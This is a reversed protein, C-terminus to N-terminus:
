RLQDVISLRTARRMPILSLILTAVLVLGTTGFLLGPTLRAYMKTSVAFGSITFGEELFSKLDIGWVQVIWAALGGLLLGLACGILGLYFSELLIQLRLQDPKTGLALLIAFERERELVSMLITNLITFLILFVLIAQFILNSGKDLKIYSAIEPIVTQWPLVAIDDQAALLQIESLVSEQAEPVRLIVGLQSVGQDPLGFLRRAFEIPAQIFYGDIEVSGTEFIGRVRCLEDVLNGAADNTTLVMKKGVGLKLRQALESGIVVWPGDEDNLYRGDVMHRALPSTELEVSPEIGMLTASVNGSGSRAIGQGLIILKTREVQPLSEIQSRLSEPAKIWLDVAPADRYKPNELTIHGAQMRVVQDILQTYVGEGIAIFFIACTLGFGISLVTILTRRRNRWISRWALRVIM